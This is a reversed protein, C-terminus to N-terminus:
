VGIRECCGDNDESSGLTRSGGCGGGLVTLVVAVIEVAGPVVSPLLLLLLSLNDANKFTRDMVVVDVFSMFDDKM